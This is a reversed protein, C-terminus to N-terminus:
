VVTIQDRNMCIIYSRFGLGSVFILYFSWRNTQTSKCKPKVFHESNERVNVYSICKILNFFIRLDVMFDLVNRRIHQNSHDSEINNTFDNTGRCRYEFHAQLCFSVYVYATCAEFIGFCHICMSPVCARRRKMGIREHEYNVCVCVCVWM